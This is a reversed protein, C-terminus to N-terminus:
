WTKGGVRALKEAECLKKIATEVMWSVERLEYLSELPRDELMALAASYRRWAGATPAERLLTQFRAQQVAPLFERGSMRGLGREKEELLLMRPALDTVERDAEERAVAFETPSLVKSPELYRRGNVFLVLIVVLGVTGLLFFGTTLFTAQM